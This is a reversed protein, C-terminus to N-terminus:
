RLLAQQPERNVPGAARDGGRAKVAHGAAINRAANVDANCAFKCAACRFLAQSERSEPAIHGCASCRQSTYAPPVKEVRGPAKEELRRALLGWGSRHIGRNLGTKQAVNRGPQEITGKASRIMNKIRLDEIRIIDFRRAFDTSVTECWDRRRDAERGHLRAVAQKVKGRRVSGRRPRALKRKLTRLRIVERRSLGPCRLKEGTSLAASVAVGRDIGVVEGKSPGDVTAPIHAFAVHWRGLRDCTVFRADACHGKLRSEQQRSPYLRYRSM